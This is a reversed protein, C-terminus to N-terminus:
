STTPIQTILIHKWFILKVFGGIIIDIEKRIMPYILNNPSITAIEFKEQSIVLKFSVNIRELVVNLLDYELGAIYTSETGNSYTYKVFMTTFYSGSKGVFAKMPCGNLSNSIKRPFLDTNKTFHGQASIVWTDLLTIDNVETCRESGQYPFWTYVGLSIGTNVDNVNIPRSPEKYIADHVKSVIICNYIRFKLFHEFIDIKQSMTFENAGAVVFRAESNWLRSYGFSGKALGNIEAKFNNINGDPILIIYSGDRDIFDSKEPISINGDVTVVAPWISTRHIKAILEQQVDRYTAPSSLV